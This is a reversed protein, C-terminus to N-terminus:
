AAAKGAPITKALAKCFVKTKWTDAHTDGQHQVKYIVYLGDPDLREIRKVKPPKKAGPKAAATKRAKIRISNNDLKVKGHVQIQPNLLCEVAIGKDDIIPSGLMGTDSNILIAETPLTSNVPVMVLNGDQISWNADADDAIDDLVDRGMASIVKGRVRKREKTVVYGKKTTGFTGIVQDLLHTTSTGAALTVNVISERLDKDGDGCELDTIRDNNEPYLSLRKINGRFIVRTAGRYGANVIVEEFEGKIKRENDPALNFIKVIAPNPSRGSTKTIDFQIRLDKVAIGRGAAGIVVTCERLFQASM